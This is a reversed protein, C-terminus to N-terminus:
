TGEFGPRKTLQKALPRVMSHLYKLKKRTMIRAMPISYRTNDTNMSRWIHMRLKTFEQNRKIREPCNKEFKGRETNDANDKAQETKDTKNMKEWFFRLIRSDTRKIQLVSKELGQMITLATLPTFCM